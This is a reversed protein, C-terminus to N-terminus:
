PRFPAGPRFRALALYAKVFGEQAADEAGAADGTILYATRFAISPYRRMLEEYAALSSRRAREALETDEM